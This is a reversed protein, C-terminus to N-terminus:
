AKRRGRSSKYQVRVPAGGAGDRGNETDKQVPLKGKKHQEVGVREPSRELEFAPQPKHEIANQRPGENVPASAGEVMNVLNLIHTPSQNNERHVADSLEISLKAITRLASAGNFDQQISQCNGIERVRKIFLYHMAAKQVVLQRARATRPKEDRVKALISHFAELDMRGDGTLALERIDCLLATVVNPNETGLDDMLSKMEAEPDKGATRFFVRNQLNEEFHIISLKLEASVTSSDDSESQYRPLAPGIYTM